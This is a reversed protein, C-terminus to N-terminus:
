RRFSEVNCRLGLEKLAATLWPASDVTFSPEGECYKLVEEIFLKTALLSRSPFVRMSIIDNRDVDIATYVWYESGNAKVCTEDLAILRRVIRPPEISVKEGLKRVWKWVATKSVRRVESLVKAARRLSSLQIYFALGLIRLEVPVRNKEFVGISEVLCRISLM